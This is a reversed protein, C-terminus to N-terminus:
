EKELLELIKKASDEKRCFLFTCGYREQMTLLIKMISEGKMQTLPKGKNKGWQWKPSKWYKLAFVNSFPEEILICLKIGHIKAGELERRFREHQKTINGVIEMVNQKIDVSVYEKGYLMYDGYDCKRRVVPIGNDKFWGEIHDKKGVKERTDQIIIRQM